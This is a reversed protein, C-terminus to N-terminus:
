LFTLRALFNGLYTCLLIPLCSLFIPLPNCSKKIVFVNLNNSSNFKGQRIKKTTM